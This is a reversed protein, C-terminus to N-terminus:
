GAFARDPLFRRSQWRNTGRFTDKAIFDRDRAALAIGNTSLLSSLNVPQDM